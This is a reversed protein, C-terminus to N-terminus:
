AAFRVFRADFSVSFMCGSDVREGMTFLVFTMDDYTRGINDELVGIEPPHTLHGLIADIADWLESEKASILRGRVLISLELKGLNTSGSSASGLRLNPVVLEGQPEIQFSHPNTGFLDNGNFVSM